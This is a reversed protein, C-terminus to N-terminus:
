NQSINKQIVQKVIDMLFLDANSLFTGKVTAICLDWYAHYQEHISYCVAKDDKPTIDVYQSPILTYGLGSAALRKATAFNKVTLYIEPNVIGAKKLISDTVQRIRQNPPLAIMPANKLLSLDLIDHCESGTKTKSKSLPNDKSTVILFPDRSLFEHHIGPNESTEKPAHMIALDLQGTTLLQELVSTTEETIQIEVRPCAASFLPLIEPLLVTGLHNTIGIHIRGSKMDSIESIELELDNYMKLIQTATHYYREGAYTLFLGFTTRNFLRTGLSTELRKIYQSLSPQAIFLKKSASLISGEDAVTRFYILEKETM